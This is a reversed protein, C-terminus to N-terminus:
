RAASGRYSATVRTLERAPLLDVATQLLFRTLMHIRGAYFCVRSPDLVCHNAMCALAHPTIDANCGLVLTRLWPSTLTASFERVVGLEGECGNRTFAVTVKELVARYSDVAEKLVALKEEALLGRDVFDAQLSCVDMMVLELLAAMTYPASLRSAKVVERVSRHSVVLALMDGHFSDRRLSTAKEESVTLLTGDGVAHCFKLFIANFSKFSEVLEYCDDVIALNTAPPTGRQIRYSVHEHMFLSWVTSILQMQLAQWLQISNMLGHKRIVQGFKTAPTVKMALEALQEATLLDRRRLVEGLRDDSLTSTAFCFRGQDLYLCKQRKGVDATIMGSWRDRILGQLLHGFVQPSSRGVDIGPALKDASDTAALTFDGGHLVLEIRVVNGM